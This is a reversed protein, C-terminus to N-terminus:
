ANRPPELVTVSVLPTVGEHASLLRQTIATELRERVADESAGAGPAVEVFAVVLLRHQDSATSRAFRASVDVLTGLGSEAVAAAADDIARREVSARELAVPSAFQAAALAALMLASAAAVAVAARQTGAPYRPGSPKLGYLRFTLAGAFNIGVLQLALLFLVGQLRGVDGLAIAVGVVGAPPALSAAVLLGVGAGSVLSDRESSSLHVGGAVGAALALLIAYASVEGVDVALQPMVDIGSFLTLALSTLVTVGIGAGYRALSRGVVSLDGRATGIAATVAPGAFPAILMAGVLLYVTNTVLGIWTVAGALAAYALMGRWSGISQLSSLYIEIPSRHRVRVAEDPAEKAPPAIAIVGSPAFTARLGDVSELDDLVGGVNDNPLSFVVVDRPGQTGRGDLEIVNVADHRAAVERVRRGSGPPVEVTLARM